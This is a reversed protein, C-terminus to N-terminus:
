PVSTTWASTSGSEFGDAFIQQSADVVVTLTAAAGDAGVNSWRIKQPSTPDLRPSRLFLVQTEQATAPVSVVVDDGPALTSLDGGCGQVTCVEVKYPCYAAGTNEVTIALHGADQRTAHTATFKYGMTQAAALLQQFSFSLDPDTFAPDGLMYNLGIREAQIGLSEGNGCHRPPLVWEGFENCPTWFAEGGWGHRKHQDLQHDPRPDQRWNTPAGHNAILLTDDFFGVREDDFTADTSGFFGHAQAADLSLSSLLDSSTNGFEDLYRSIMTKQFAISPFNAATYPGGDLHHEGWLGALGMQIYAVRLDSEYRAAFADIFKLVCDQTAMLNWVPNDYTGTGYNFDAVPLDDPAFSGDGDGYGPGFFVPRLIAQHGRAAVTALFGDVIAWDFSGACLPLVESVGIFKWEMALVDANSPTKWAVGGTFPNVYDHDEFALLTSTGKQMTPNSGLPLGAPARGLDPLLGDGDAGAPPIWLLLPLMMLSIWRPVRFRKQSIM